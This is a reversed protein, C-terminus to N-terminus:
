IANGGIQFRTIYGDDSWQHTAGTVYYPQDFTQGLGSLEIYRGARIEPLGVSEGVGHLLKMARRNLYADAMSQAEEMTATNTYIYETYTGSEASLLDKGTKSNTGLKKIVGSKGEILEQKKDDWSRVSVDTIQEALNADMYLSKLTQGYELTIVPSMQTFPKRFYLHKGVIFFDYNVTKALYQLYMFDNIRNQSVTPYNTTTADVHPTAGHSRAIEEVIESYKKNNWTRSKSGKLMLYTLDMGRVTLAPTESEAFETVVSTIYGSFIPTLKSGYGFQLEISAGLTFVNLWRFQKTQLDFANAVRFTFTDAVPEITTEVEIHSIGIGQPLATGAIKVELAPAMFDAYKQKLQDLTYQSTDLELKAM